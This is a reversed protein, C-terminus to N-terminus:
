LVLEGESNIGFQIMISECVWEYGIKQYISNSTPNSLDTYLSCFSYNELLQKSFTYVSSSAYGKGREIDPTYVLTVVIGNNTARASKVMSVPQNQVVWLYLSQQEIYESAKEQCEEVSLSEVTYETFEKIWKAVLPQDEPVAQRLYGESVTIPKLKTLKYIGQQMGIYNEIGTAQKWEEAFLEALRKEGTVGPFLFGAEFFKKVAFSITEERYCDAAILLNHPHTRLFILLNGEDDEVTCLLLKQPDVPNQDLQKAVGLIVNHKAEDRLLIPEIKKRYEQVTKYFVFNMESLGGKERNDEDM